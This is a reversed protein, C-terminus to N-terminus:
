SSKDRNTNLLEAETRVLWFERREEAFQNRDYLFRRLLRIEAECHFHKNQANKELGQHNRHAFHVPLHRSTFSDVEADIALQLM